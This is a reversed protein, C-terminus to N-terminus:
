ETKGKTWYNQIEEQTKEKNKYKPTEKMKQHLVWIEQRKRAIEALIPNEKDWEWTLQMSIHGYPNKDESGVNKMYDRHEKSSYNIEYKKTIEQHEKSIIGKMYDIIEIPKKCTGCTITEWEMHYVKNEGTCKKCKSKYETQIEM